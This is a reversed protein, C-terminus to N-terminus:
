WPQEDPPTVPTPEQAAAGGGAWAPAEPEHAAGTGSNLFEVDQAAMEIKAGPEGNQRIWGYARSEGVCAVKRGKKLYKACTEALGRWVTVDIFEAEDKNGAGRRNVAVTFVTYNVGDKTVKAEPDRTLNGIIIHRNLDREGRGPEM